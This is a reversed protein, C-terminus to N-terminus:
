LIRIIWSINGFGVIFTVFESVCFETSIQTWYQGYSTSSRAKRVFSLRFFWFFNFIERFVEFFRLFFNFDLWLFSLFFVSLNPTLYHSSVWFGDRTPGGFKAPVLYLYKRWFWSFVSSYGTTQVSFSDVGIIQFFVGFRRYTPPWVTVQFEVVVLLQVM